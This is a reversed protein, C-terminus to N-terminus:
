NRRWAVYLVFDRVAEAQLKLARPADMKGIFVEVIQLKDAAAFASDELLRALEDFKRVQYTAYSGEPAGFV